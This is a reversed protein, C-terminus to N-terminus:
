LKKIMVAMKNETRMGKKNYFGETAEGKLTNLTIEKVGKEKLRKEFEEFIASGTGGGRMIVCFERINFVVGDYYQEFCGLIMGVPETNEYAAIGYAAEGDMMQELRKCATEFSWRDNWPPSNFAAIFVATLEKIDNRGIEKFDM